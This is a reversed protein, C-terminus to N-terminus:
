FHLILGSLIYYFFFHTREEKEFLFSVIAQCFLLLFVFSSLFSFLRRLLHPVLPDTSFVDLQQPSILKSPQVFLVCCAFLSFLILVTPHYYRTTATLDVICGNPVMEVLM